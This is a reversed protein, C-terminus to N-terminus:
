ASVRERCSARGIKKQCVLLGQVRDADGYLIEEKIQIGVEIESDNSVIAGDGGSATVGKIKVTTQTDETITDKVKFKVTFMTSGETVFDENDIVLKFNQENFSNKDLEWGNQGTISIKELINTDYELQGTLSILGKGINKFNDINFNLEFEQGPEIKQIDVSENASTISTVFGRVTVTCTNSRFLM